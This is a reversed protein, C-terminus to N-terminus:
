GTERNKWVRSVSLSAKM